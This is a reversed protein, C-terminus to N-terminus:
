TPWEAGDVRGWVAGPGLRSAREARASPKRPESPESPESLIHDAKSDEGGGDGAEDHRGLEAGHAPASGCAVEGEDWWDESDAM